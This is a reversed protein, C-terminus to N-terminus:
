PSEESLVTANDENSHISSLSSKTKSLDQYLTIIFTTGKGIISNVKIDGHHQKIIGYVVSLGLGVGKGNTKTTFFPEFIHPLDEDRIGIGSDSVSIEVQNNEPLCRTVIKMNGGQPMAEVANVCLAILAQQISQSDCTLTCSPECFKKELTVNRLQLHHNILLCAKEIIDNLPVNSFETPQKKSFILLNKVINGCRNIEDSMFKLDNTMSLIDEKTLNDKNLRRINLKTYTLIGALPNNLEHAVTASLQGLSAMKEIQILHNQAKKLEETKQRVKEKLTSSWETIEDHAKKLERTMKNFSNALIGIEDRSNIDIGYDLNGDAIEQTGITLKHVPIQVVRWIFLGSLMATFTIALTAVIIMMKRSEYIQKDVSALSMRVDLVGLVTQNPSHFHCEATNCDKENPIPNIIGLIRNGNAATYVRTRNEINPSEIPKNGVHCVNCAETKMDVITKEESTVTSFMIEGKKNYIRIGEVGPQDGLTKIIQFVDERRNLLMSYRTSRKILDGTSNAHEVVTGM